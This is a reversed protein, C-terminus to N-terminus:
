TRIDADTWNRFAARTTVPEIVLFGVGAGIGGGLLLAALAANTDRTMVGAVVLSAGFLWDAALVWPAARRRVWLLEAPYSRSTFWLHLRLAAAVTVAISAAIFLTRGFPEQIVTRAGWMAILLLGYVLSVIGQHVEWWWREPMAGPSTAPSGADLAALLDRASAFRADPDAQMCRGIVAAFPVTRAPAAAGPQLPHRGTLMESFMVGFAFLDTRADIQGGVLQEPAMYAPTGLMAGARTLRTL